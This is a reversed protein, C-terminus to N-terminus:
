RFVSPNDGPVAEFFGVVAAPSTLRALTGTCACYEGQRMEPLLDQKRLAWHEASTLFMLGPVLGPIPEQHRKRVTLAQAGKKKRVEGM